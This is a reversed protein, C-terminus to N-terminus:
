DSVSDATRGTEQSSVSPSRTFWSRFRDFLNSSRTQREMEVREKLRATEADEMIRLRETIATEQNHLRTTLAEHKIRLQEVAAENQIQVEITKAHLYEKRADSLYQAITENSAIVASVTAGVTLLFLSTDIWNIQIHTRKTIVRRGM